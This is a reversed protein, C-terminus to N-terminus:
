IHIPICARYRHIHIHIQIRTNTDIHSESPQRTRTFALFNVGHKLRCSDSGDVDIDIGVYIQLDLDLNLYIYSETCDFHFYLYRSYKEKEKSTLCDALRTLRLNNESRSPVADLLLAHPALRLPLNPTACNIIPQITQLCLCALASRFTLFARRVTAAVHTAATHHLTTCHAATHHLTNRHTATQQLTHSAPTVVSKGCPASQTYAYVYLCIHICV